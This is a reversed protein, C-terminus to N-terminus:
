RGLFSAAPPIERPPPTSTKPRLAEHPPFLVALGYGLADSPHSHEDKIAQPTFKGNPLKGYRWGGRLAEQLPKTSEPDLQLFPRGGVNRNLAAKVSDRRASWEIPGAEFSTHLLTELALKASRESSSQERTNAAADGIDRFRWGTRMSTQGYGDRANYPLHMGLVMQYPLVHQQILETVGISRGVVVGLIYLNGLPTLQAWICTPSLGFDWFRFSDWRPSYPVPLAVGHERYIHTADSYEPTVAEGSYVSGVKGEALRALLDLRGSAIFGARLRERYGAELHPNEGSPIWLMKVRLSKLQKGAIWDSIELTWHKESPPNMTIQLRVKTGSQSLSSMAMAFVDVPVGSALDAAPAPEEIWAMGCEFSQFKNADAPRDMGFFFLHAVGNLLAQTGDQMWEVHWWGRKAGDKLTYFVSRELNTWTDRVVAVRLPRADPNRAAHALIGAVGGVTKGERRAGFVLVVEEEARVFAWITSSLAIGVRDTTLTGAPALTQFTPDPPYLVRSRRAM